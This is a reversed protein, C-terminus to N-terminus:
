KKTVNNNNTSLFTEVQLYILTRHRNNKECFLGVLMAPQKKENMKKIGKKKDKHSVKSHIKTKNIKILFFTTCFM